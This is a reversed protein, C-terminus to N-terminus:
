IYSHFRNELKKKFMNDHRGTQGGREPSLISQLLRKM